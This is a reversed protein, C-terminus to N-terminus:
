SLLAFRLRTGPRALYSENAPFNVSIISTWLCCEENLKAIQEGGGPFSPFGMYQHKSAQVSSAISPPNVPLGLM